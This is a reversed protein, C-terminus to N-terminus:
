FDAQSDDRKRQTSSKTSEPKVEDRKHKTNQTVVIATAPATAM